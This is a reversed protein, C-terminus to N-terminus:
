QEDEEPVWKKATDFDFEWNSMYNCGACPCAMECRHCTLDEPCLRTGDAEKIVRDVHKCNECRGYFKLYDLLLKNEQELQKIYALGDAMSAHAMDCADQLDHADGGEVVWSTEEMAEVLGKKIEDPTKM